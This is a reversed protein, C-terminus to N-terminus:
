PSIEENRVTTSKLEVSQEVEEFGLKAFVPQLPDDASDIHAEALTIGDAALQRLASGLLFTATAESDQSGHLELQILGRAHIGWSSALPEMDWFTATALKTEDKIRTATFAFRNTLGVTCAEWWSAAPPDPLCEVQISRKLQMQQRDVVPRFNALSRQLISKRGMEVYGRHSFVDLTVEDSALVGPVSAGDHLGLYFPAVNLSGGGYLDRAGRERLYQESHLLLDRLVDRRAPDSIMLMCTAGVSLDQESGDSNRSFGAHAFGIPVGNEEAVVMGHRDFLPRSLVVRELVAPTLTQYYAKCSAQKGWIECLAPPDTNRFARYDIM